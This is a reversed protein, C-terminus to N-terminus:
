GGGKGVTSPTALPKDLGGVLARMGDAADGLSFDSEPMLRDAFKWMIDLRVNDRAQGYVLVPKGQGSAYGVELATSVGCPMLAFVGACQDLGRKDFDFAECSQPAELFAFPSSLFQPAVDEWWFGNNRFDWTELGRRRLLQHVLDLRERNKWSSAVYILPKSM